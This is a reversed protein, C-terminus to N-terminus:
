GFRTMRFTRSRIISKPPSSLWDNVCRVYKEHTKMGELYLVIKNAMAKNIKLNPFEIVELIKDMIWLLQTKLIHYALVSTTEILKPKCIANSGGQEQCLFDSWQKCGIHHLLKCQQNFSYNFELLMIRRLNKIFAKQDSENHSISSVIIQNLINALFETTAEFFLIEGNKNEVAYDSTKLNVPMRYDLNHFHINEHLICKLLEESRYILITTGDTVATNINNPTLIKDGPNLLKKINCAYIRFIPLKKVSLLVNFFLTRAAIDRFLVDHKKKNTMPMNIIYSGTLGYEDLSYTINYSKKLSSAICSHCQISMFESYELKYDYINPYDAFLKPPVTNNYLSNTINSSIQPNEALYNDLEVLTGTNLTTRLKAPLSEVYYELLERKSPFKKDFSSEVVELKLSNYIARYKSALNWMVNGYKAITNESLHNAKKKTRSVKAAM